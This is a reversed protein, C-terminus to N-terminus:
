LKGNVFLGFNQTVNPTMTNGNSAVCTYTDSDSDRTSSITLSRSVSSINGGSTPVTEPDSPNSLSIRSDVSENLVEGNRIWSIEPPPIGTASCNFTVPDTENVTYMQGDVPFTINPVVSYWLSHFMTVYQIYLCCWTNLSHLESHVTLTAQQMVSGPENRAGCAYGGADSPQSGLITLMSRRERDGIEQEEIRHGGSQNQLQVMDSLRTWVIDPRPRGTALCSFTADQPEVVTIDDPPDLIQPAVIHFLSLATPWYCIFNVLPTFM